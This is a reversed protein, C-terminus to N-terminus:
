AREKDDAEMERLMRKLAVLQQGKEIQQTQLRGMAEGTAVFAGNVEIIKEEIERKTKM